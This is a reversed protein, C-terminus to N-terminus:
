RADLSEPGAAVLLKREKTPRSLSVLVDAFGDTTVLLTLHSVTVLRRQQPLLPSLALKYARKRLETMSRQSYEFLECIGLSGVYSGVQTSLNKM